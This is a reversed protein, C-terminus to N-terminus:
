GAASGSYHSLVVGNVRLILYIGFELLFNSHNTEPALVLDSLLEIAVVVEVNWVRDLLVHESVSGGYKIVYEELALFVRKIVEVM